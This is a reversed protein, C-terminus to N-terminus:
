KQARSTYEVNRIFLYCIKILWLKNCLISNSFISSFCCTFSSLFFVQFKEEQCQPFGEANTCRFIQVVLFTRNSCFFPLTAIHSFLLIPSLRCGQGMIGNKLCHLLCTSTSLSRDFFLSLLMVTYSKPEITIKITQNRLFHIHSANRSLEILIQHHHRLYEGYSKIYFYRDFFM